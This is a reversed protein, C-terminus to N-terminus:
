PCPLFWGTVPDDIMLAHRRGLAPRLTRDHGLGQGGVVQEWEDRLQRMVLLYPQCLEDQASRAVRGAISSRILGLGYTGVLERLVFFTGSPLALTPLCGTRRPSIRHYM